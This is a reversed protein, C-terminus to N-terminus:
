KACGGNLSLTEPRWFRCAYRRFYLDGRVFRRHYGVTLILRQDADFYNIAAAVFYWACPHRDGKMNFAIRFNNLHFIGGAKHGQRVGVAGPLYIHGATALQYQSGATCPAAYVKFSGGVRYIRTRSLDMGYLRTDRMYNRMIFVNWSSHM